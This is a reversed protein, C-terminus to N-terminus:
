YTALQQGYWKDTHTFMCMCVFAGSGEDTDNFVIEFMYHSLLSQQRCTDRIAVPLFDGM